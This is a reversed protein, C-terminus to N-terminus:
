GGPDGGSLTEPWNLVVDIVSGTARNKRRALIVRSGDQGVDYNATSAGYGDWRGFRLEFLLSPTGPSFADGDGNVDVRMLRDGQRYFIERGNRSWVPDTGGGSSIPTRDEPAGLAAVYVEYRGTDNSVYLMRRGDPSFMPAREDASTALFERPQEPEDPSLLYIDGEPGDQTAVYAIVAGDPSWSSPFEWNGFGPTATLPETEAGPGEIWAFSPGGNHESEGIESSFAM